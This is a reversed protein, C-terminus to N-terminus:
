HCRSARTRSPLAAPKVAARASTEQTASVGSKDSRPAHNGASKMATQFVDDITRTEVPNDACFYEDFM